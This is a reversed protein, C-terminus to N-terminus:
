CGDSGSDLRRTEAPRQSTALLRPRQWFDAQLHSVMRADDYQTVWCIVWQIV